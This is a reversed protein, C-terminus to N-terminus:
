TASGKNAVIHTATAIMYGTDNLPKAGSNTSPEGSARRRDRADITAQKLPPEWVSVIQKRISGEAVGGILELADDFTGEGRLMRKSAYSVTKAWLQQVQKFMGRLGMRPPINNTPSGFEQIAAVYAVQTGNPYVSSAFWGVQGERRSVGELATELPKRAPGPTRVVRAAM